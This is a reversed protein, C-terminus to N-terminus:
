RKANIYANLDDISSEFTFADNVKYYNGIDYTHGYGAKALELRTDEFSFLLMIEKVQSSFLCNSNLVQKAMTLKSDEFSKSAISEKVGKFDADSMPWPCGIPGNYGPMIYHSPTSPSSTSTTTQTTTTSASSMGSNINVNMSVNTGKSNSSAAPKVTTSSTTTSTSASGNYTAQSNNYDTAKPAPAAATSSSGNNPASAIRTEAQKKLVYRENKTDIEAKKANAEDRTKMGWTGKFDEGLKKATKEADGVTKKKIVYKQEMGANLYLQDTITGL